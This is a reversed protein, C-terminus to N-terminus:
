KATGDDVGVWIIIAEKWSAAEYLEALVKGAEEESIDGRMKSRVCSYDYMKWANDYDMDEYFIVEGDVVIYKKVNVARIKSIWFSFDDSPVVETDVMTIVPLKPHEKHLEILKEIM